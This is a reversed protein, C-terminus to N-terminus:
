YDYTLRGFYGQTSWHTLNETATPDGSATQLSLIAPVMLGNKSANLQNAHNRELQAGALLAFNHKRNLDFQYTTYINSTWYNNSEHRQSISSPVTSGWPRVSKNVLSEYITLSVDS